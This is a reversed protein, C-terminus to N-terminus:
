LTNRVNFQPLLSRPKHIFTQVLLTSGAPTHLFLAQGKSMLVVETGKLLFEVNIQEVAAM